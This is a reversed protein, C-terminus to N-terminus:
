EGETPIKKLRFRRAANRGYAYTYTNEYESFSVNGGFTLILADFKMLNVKLDTVSFGKSLYFRLRKERQTKNDCEALPDEIELFIRCDGFREFIIDLAKGGIGCNRYREDVAFYDIFFLDKYRCCIMFGANEDGKKIIFKLVNPGKFRFFAKRESRPFSKDYLKKMYNLEKKGSVKVVSIYSM